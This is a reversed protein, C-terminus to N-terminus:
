QNQHIDIANNHGGITYDLIIYDQQQVNLIYTDEKDLRLEIYNGAEDERIWIYSDEDDLLTIGTEPDKGFVLNSFDGRKKQKDFKGHAPGTELIHAKQHWGCPSKLANRLTKFVFKREGRSLNSMTLVHENVLADVLTTFMVLMPLLFFM